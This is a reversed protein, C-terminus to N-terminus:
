GDFVEGKRPPRVQAAGSMALRGGTGNQLAESSTIHGMKQAQERYDQGAEQWVVEESFGVVPQSGTTVGYTVNRAGTQNILSKIEANSDAGQLLPANFAKAIEVPSMTMQRGLQSYGKFLFASFLLALATVGLAAGLYAYNTKFVARRERQVAQVSQAPTTSNVAAVSWRFMLERAGALLEELPDRFYVDCSQAINESPDSRTGNVVAYQQVMNGTSQFTYGVAGTFRLHAFSGYKNQLALWIGAFMSPGQIAPATWNHTELVTDDFITTYPDLAVTSANGDVLVKYRVVGTRLSCNRVVLDGACAAESKLATGISFNSPYIPNFGFDINFVEIGDVASGEGLEISGNSGMVPNLDYPVSYSSCNLALGLGEVSTECSGSGGCGTGAIPISSNSNWRQVVDGFDQSFLPVDYGRGSIYGTFYEPVIETQLKMNLSVTNVSPEVSARSARQLLPSNIQAITAVICAVAIFNLHRGSLIADQFSSGYLWHRHLDGLTTSKTAYTWFAVNAGEKLVYFLCVNTFVAAIALYTPPQFEWDAIPKGDSYALVATSAVLGIICVIFGALPLWPLRAIAGPKWPNRTNM